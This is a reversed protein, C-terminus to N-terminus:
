RPVRMVFYVILPVTVPFSVMMFVSGLWFASRDLLGAPRPPPSFPEFYVGSYLHEYGAFRQQMAGLWARLRVLRSDKQMAEIPPVPISCHCQIIGFLMIDSMNPALGGLFPQGGNALKEEWYLFQDGFNDPDPMKRTLVSFRILLFFYLTAFSRFFNNRLRLYRSPDPDGALSFRNFFRFAHDPRHLVGQWAIKVAKLDDPSIPEFKMRQLIDASELQWPEGNVRAAPMMIGWKAFVSLPPATRLTHSLGKEHLGLLVAQVWPSHDQGYVEIHTV